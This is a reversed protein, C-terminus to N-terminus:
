FSRTKDWLASASVQLTLVLNFVAFDDPENENAAKMLLPIEGGPFSAAVEPYDLPGTVLIFNM